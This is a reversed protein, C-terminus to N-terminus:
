LVRATKPQMKRIVMMLSSNMVGTRASEAMRRLCTVVRLSRENMRASVVERRRKGKM